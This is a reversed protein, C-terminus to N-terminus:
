KSARRRALLVPTSILTAYPPVEVRAALEAIQFPVEIRIPVGPRIASKRSLLTKRKFSQSNKKKSSASRISSMPNLHTRM